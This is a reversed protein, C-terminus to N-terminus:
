WLGVSNVSMMARCELGCQALKSSLWWWPSWSSWFTSHCALLSYSHAAFTDMGHYLLGLLALLSYLYSSTRVLSDWALRDVNSPGYTKMVGVGYLLCLMGRILFILPCTVTLILVQYLRHQSSCQSSIVRSLVAHNNSAETPSVGAM